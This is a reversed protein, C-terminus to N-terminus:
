QVYAVNFLNLLYSKKLKIGEKKYRLTFIFFFLDDVQSLTFSPM